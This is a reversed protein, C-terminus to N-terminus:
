APVFSCAVMVFLGAPLGPSQSYECTFSICFTFSFDGGITQASQLM